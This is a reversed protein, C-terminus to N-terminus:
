ECDTMNQILPAAIDPRDTVIGQAGADLTAQIQEATNLTWFVCRISRKRAFTIFATSALPLGMYRRPIQLYEYPLSSLDTRGHPSWRSFYLHAVERQIASTSVSPAIQRFHLLPTAHFSGVNVRQHCANREICEAVLKAALPSNDKIDINIRTLPYREFLEDLSLFRIGEGRCAKGDLDTFRYAADLQKLASFNQSLVTGSGETTRDITEDHTVVVVGDRSLRVDIELVDVGLNLALDFAVETNEPALLSSGRHGYLDIKQVRQPDSGAQQPDSGRLSNINCPIKNM